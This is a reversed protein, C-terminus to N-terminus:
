YLFEGRTIPSRTGTAMGIEAQHGDGWRGDRHGGGGAARSQRRGAASQEVLTPGGREGQPRPMARSGRRRTVPPPPFVTPRSRSAMTGTATARRWRWRAWEGRRIYRRRVPDEEGSRARLAAGRVTVELAAGSSPPPPRPVDVCPLSCALVPLSRHWRRPRSPPHSLTSHTPHPKLQSHPM